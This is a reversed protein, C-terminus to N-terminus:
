DNNLKWEVIEQPDLLKFLNRRYITSMILADDTNGFDNTFLYNFIGYMNVAPNIFEVDYFTLPDIHELRTVAEVWCLEGVRPDDKYYSSTIKALLRNM